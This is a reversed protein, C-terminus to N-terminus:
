FIIIKEWIYFSAERTKKCYNVKWLLLIEKFLHSEITRNNSPELFQDIHVRVYREITFSETPLGVDLNASTNSNHVATSHLTSGTRFWSPRLIVTYLQWSTRVFLIEFFNSPFHRVYLIYVLQYLLVQEEPTKTLSQLGEIIIQFRLLFFSKPHSYYLLIVILYM